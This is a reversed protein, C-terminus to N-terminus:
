FRVVLGLGTSHLDIEIKDSKHLSPILLGIGAGVAYGTLVDTPFHKGAKYRLYGITAPIAAAVLWVIEKKDMEPHLDTIVKASMFSLATTVSTHGSFFSLQSGSTLKLELPVEPNYNFPRQRQVISKTINTLSYTFLFTEIAMYSIAKTEARCNHNFLTFFPLFAGSYLIIDSATQATSSFNSTAGRDFGSVDIIDLDNIQELTTVAVKKNLILGVINLGIGPVLYKLEKKLNSEYTYHSDGFHIPEAHQHQGLLIKHASTLSMLVLLLLVRNILSSM